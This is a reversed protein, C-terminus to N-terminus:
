AKKTWRLIPTRAAKTEDVRSVEKTLPTLSFDIKGEEAEKYIARMAAIFSDVMEKSESETPEIMIAEPIILPFYNTPPHFGYDMLRKSVDKTLVNFKKLPSGSMVCEHM